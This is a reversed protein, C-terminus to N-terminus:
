AIYAGDSKQYTQDAALLDVTALAFEDQALEVEDDAGGLLALSMNELAQQCRNLAHIRLPEVEARAQSQLSRCVTNLRKAATASSLNGTNWEEIVDAVKIYEETTVDSDEETEEPADRSLLTPVPAGCSGCTSSALNLSTGCRLCQDSSEQAPTSLLAAELERYAEVSRNIGIQLQRFGEVAYREDYDLLCDQLADLGRLQQRYGSVLTRVVRDETEDHDQVSDELAELQEHVVVEIQALLSELQDLKAEDEEAASWAQQLSRMLPTDYNGDADLLVMDEPTYNM